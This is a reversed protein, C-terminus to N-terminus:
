SNKNKIYMLINLLHQQSHGYFSSEFFWWGDNESNTEKRWKVELLDIIIDSLDDIADGIGNEPEEYMKGSNLVIHYFGFDEFNSRVNEVVDPFLKRKNLEKYAKKDFEYNLEFYKSYLRVLNRELDREKDKVKVNPTLGYKVISNIIEILEEM